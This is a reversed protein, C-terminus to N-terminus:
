GKFPTLWCDSLSPIVGCIGNYIDCERVMCEDELSTRTEGFNATSNLKQRSIAQPHSFLAQHGGPGPQNISSQQTSFLMQQQNRAGISLSALAESPGQSSSVSGVSAFSNQQLQTQQQQQQSKILLSRM